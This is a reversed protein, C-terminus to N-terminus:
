ADCFNVPNSCSAIRLGPRSQIAALTKFWCTAPPVTATSLPFGHAVCINEAVLLQMVVQLLQRMPAFNRSGNGGHELGPSGGRGNLQEAIDGSGRFHIVVVRIHVPAIVAEEDGRGGM